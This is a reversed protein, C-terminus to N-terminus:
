RPVLGSALRAYTISNRLLGRQAVASFLASLLLIFAVVRLGQPRTLRRGALWAVCGLILALMGTLYGWSYFCRQFNRGNMGEPVLPHPLRLGVAAPQTCSVLRVVEGDVVFSGGGTPAYDASTIAHLELGARDILRVRELVLVGPRDVPTLRLGCLPADLLPLTYTLSQHTHSVPVVIQELTRYGRGFDPSFFFRAGRHDPANLGSPYYPSVVLGEEVQAGWVALAETGTLVHGTKGTSDVLVCGVLRSSGTASSPVRGSISLRWWGNGAATAQMRYPLDAPVACEGTDLDVFPWVTRRAEGLILGVYRHNQKKAHISFTLTEDASKPIGQAMLIAYTGKGAQLLDASKSGDPSELADATVTVTKPKWWGNGAFDESGYYAGDVEFRAKFQLYLQRNSPESLPWYELPIEQPLCFGLLAVLCAALVRWRTPWFPHPLLGSVGASSPSPRNPLLSTM